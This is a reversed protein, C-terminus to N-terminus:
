WLTWHKTKHSLIIIKLLLRYDDPKLCSKSAMQSYLCANQPLSLFFILSPFSRSPLMTLEGTLAPNEGLTCEGTSQLTGKAKHWKFPWERCISDYEKELFDWINWDGHLSTISYPWWGDPLSAKLGESPTFWLPFLTPQLSVFLLYSSFEDVSIFPIPYIFAERHCDTESKTQNATDIARFNSYLSLQNGCLTGM